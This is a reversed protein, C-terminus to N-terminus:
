STSKQSSWSHSSCRPSEFRPAARPTRHRPWNWGSPTSRPRRNARTSSVPFCSRAGTAPSTGGSPVPGAPNNTHSIAPLPNAPHLCPLLEQVQANQPLIGCFGSILLRMRFVGSYAFVAEALPKEELPCDRPQVPSRAIKLRFGPMHRCTSLGNVQILRSRTAAHTLRSCDHVDICLRKCYHVDLKETNRLIGVRIYATPPSPGQCLHGRYSPTRRVGDRESRPDCSLCEPHLQGCRGGRRPRAQQRASPLDQRGIPRQRVPEFHRM